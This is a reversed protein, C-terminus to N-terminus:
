RSICLINPIEVANALFKTVHVIKLTPTPKVTGAIRPVGYTKPEQWVVEVTESFIDIVTTIEPISNTPGRCRVRTIISILM